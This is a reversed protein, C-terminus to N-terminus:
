DLDPAGQKLADKFFMFAPTLQMQASYHPCLENLVERGCQPAWAAREGQEGMAGSHHPPPFHPCHLVGGGMEM